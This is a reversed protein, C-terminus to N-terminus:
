GHYVERGCGEGPVYEYVYLVRVLPDADVYEIAGDLTDFVTIGYGGSFCAFRIQHVWYESDNIVYKVEDEMVHIVNGVFGLPIFAVVLTILFAIGVLLWVVTSLTSLPIGISRRHTRRLGLAGGRLVVV